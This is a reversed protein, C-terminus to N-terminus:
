VLGITGYRPKVTAVLDARYGVIRQRVRADLAAAEALTNTDKTGGGEELIRFADIMFAVHTISTVSKGYFALTGANRVGVTGTVSFRDYLEQATLDEGNKLLGASRLIECVFGSCDIGGELPSNGGYVYRLNVFQMAYKITLDM